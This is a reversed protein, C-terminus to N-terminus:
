GRTAFRVILVILAVLFMLISIRNIGHMVRLNFNETKNQDKRWFAIYSWFKRWM